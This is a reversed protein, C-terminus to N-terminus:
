WLKASESLDETANSLVDRKTNQTNNAFKAEKPSAFLKKNMVGTKLKLSSKKKATKVM